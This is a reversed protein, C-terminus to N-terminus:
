GSGEVRGVGGGGVSRGCMVAVGLRKPAARITAANAYEGVWVVGGFVWVRRGAPWLPRANRPREDPTSALLEVDVEVAATRREWSGRERVACLAALPYHAPALASTEGSRGVSNPLPREAAACLQEAAGRASQM